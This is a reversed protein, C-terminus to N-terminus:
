PPEPGRHPVTERADRQGLDGRVNDRNGPRLARMDGDEDRKKRVARENFFAWMFFGASMGALTGAIIM